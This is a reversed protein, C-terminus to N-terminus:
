SAQERIRRDSGPWENWAGGHLEFSMLGHRANELISCRELCCDRCSITYCVLHSKFMRLCTPKVKDQSKMLLSMEFLDKAM